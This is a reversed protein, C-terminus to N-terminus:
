KYSVIFQRIQEITMGTESNGFVLALDYLPKMRKSCEFDFYKNRIPFNGSHLLRDYIHDFLSVSNSTYQEYREYTAIKNLEELTKAKPTTELFLPQDKEIMFQLTRKIGNLGIAELRDSYRPILMWHPCNKPINDKNKSASVLSIMEVITEIERLSLNQDYILIQRANECNNNNPFYKADDADHLLAALQILYMQRVTIIDKSHLIAQYANDMVALAHELGHTSDVDCDLCLKELKEIFINFDPM